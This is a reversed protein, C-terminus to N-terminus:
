WPLPFCSGGHVHFVHVHVVHFVHVDVVHFVHVYFVHFVHGHVLDAGVLFM